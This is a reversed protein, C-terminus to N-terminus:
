WYKWEETPIWGPNTIEIHRPDKVLCMCREITNHDSLIEISAKLNETWSMIFIRCIDRFQRENDVGKPYIYIVSERFGKLM